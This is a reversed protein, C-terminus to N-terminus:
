QVAVPMGIDAGLRNAAEPDVWRVLALFNVLTPHDPRAAFMSKLSNVVKRHTSAYKEHTLRTVNSEIITRAISDTRGDPLYPLQCFIKILTLPDAETLTIWSQKIEDGDYKSHLRDRIAAATVAPETRQRILERIKDWARRRENAVPDGEEPKPVEILSPKIGLDTAVGKALADAQDKELRDSRFIAKVMVLQMEPSILRLNSAVEAAGPVQKLPILHRIFEPIVQEEESEPLKGSRLKLVYKLTKAVGGGKGINNIVMQRHSPSTVHGLLEEAAVILKEDLKDQPGTIVLQEVLGPLRNAFVV